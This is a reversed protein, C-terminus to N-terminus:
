FASGQFVSSVEFLLSKDTIHREQKRCVTSVAPAKGLIRSCEVAGMPPPWGYDKMKEGSSLQLLSTDPHNNKKSTPRALLNEGM